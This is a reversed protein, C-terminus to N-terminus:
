RLCRIGKPDPSLASKGCVHDHSHATTEWDAGSLSDFVGHLLELPVDQGYVVRGIKQALVFRPRGQCVKKDLSMTERLRANQRNSLKIGVPLGARKLTAVVREYEDRDMGTLAHSLRCAAAMGIAVAEGHLFRGYGAIAEIGHGITHGFNLIARLGGEQEDQRVVEAKITCCCAIVRALIEEDRSLISEMRQELLRFLGPDWIVGYKIVEALGSCFERTPLTDLVALDGLVLKPQHFAGVLNKASRLNIGVKGGVSSDVQALLSTPVQVLGIGRLYTAAVFGALDGVVGGGLAIIFSHRDLRHCAM